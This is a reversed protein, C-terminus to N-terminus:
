AAAPLPSRAETALRLAGHLARIFPDQVLFYLVNVRQRRRKILGCRGMERLHHILTTDCYGTERQLVQFPCGSQRSEAILRFLRVRRPHALSKFCLSLMTDDLRPM